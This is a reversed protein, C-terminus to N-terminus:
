QFPFYLLSSMDYIATLNTSLWSLEGHVQGPLTIPSSRLQQTRSGSPWGRLCYDLFSVSVLRHSPVLHLCFSRSAPCDPYSCLGVQRGVQRRYTDRSCQGLPLCLTCEPISSSMLHISSACDNYLVRLRSDTCPCPVSGMWPDPVHVRWIGSCKGCM